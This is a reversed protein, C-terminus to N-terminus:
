LWAAADDGAPGLPDDIGTLPRYTAICLAFAVGAGTLALAVADLRWRPRELEPMEREGPISQYGPIREGPRSIASPSVAIHSSISGRQLRYLRNSHCVRSTLMRPVLGGIASSELSQHGTGCRRTSVEGGAGAVVTPRGDVVM